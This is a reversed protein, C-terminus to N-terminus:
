GKKIMELVHTLASIYSDEKAVANWQKLEIMKQLVKEREYILHEVKWILTNKM